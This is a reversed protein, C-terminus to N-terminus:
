KKPDGKIKKRFITLQPKFGLKLHFKESNKNVTFVDLRMQKVGRKKSEEELLKYLKAGIGKNREKKVVYSWSVWCFTERENGFNIGYPVKKTFTWWIFGIPFNEKFIVIIEKKKIASIIKQSLLNLPKIQEKELKGIESIGSIIFNLNNRTAYRSYTQKYM